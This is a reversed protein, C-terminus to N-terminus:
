PVPILEIEGVYLGGISSGANAAFWAYNGKNPVFPEGVDVWRYEKNSLSEGKISFTFSGAPNGPCHVGATAVHGVGADKEKRLQARLQYKRGPVCLNVPFHWQVLWKSDCELRCALGNSALPDRRQPYEYLTGNISHIRLRGTASAESLMALESMRGSMSRIESYSNMEERATVSKIRSLLMEYRQTPFEERNGPYANFISEAEMLAIPIYHVEIREILKADDAQKAKAFARDFITNAKTIFGAKGYFSEISKSARGAADVLKYYEYMEGAADGFVGECFDRALEDPDLKSDWLMKSLVWARLAQQDGGNAGFVEQFMIGDVGSEYWFGLNGTKAHLTPMVRFYNAFDCGYEWIYATKVIQKWKLFEAARKKHTRFAQCSDVGTTCFWMAVNPEMEMNVPPKRYDRSYALFTVKVKPFDKAVARAVENVLTLHAAVPARHRINIRDCRKCRCYGWSGDYESISILSADKRKNAKLAALAREKARKVIEPHTPCIQTNFPQGNAKKAFLDPRAKFESMPCIQAYTHAFWGDIHNFRNWKMVRNHRTWEPASSMASATFVFRVDFSPNSIRDTVEVTLNRNSPLHEWKHSYWRCGADEELFAMVANMIGASGGLLCVSKGVPKVAIGEPTLQGAVKDLGAERAQVTNGISIYAGEFPSDDGQVKFSAGTMRDLYKKLEEAAEQEEPSAKAPIIIVSTAKGDAALAMTRSIGELRLANFKQACAAPTLLCLASLLFLSRIHIKAMFYGM